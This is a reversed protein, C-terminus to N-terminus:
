RGGAHLVAGQGQQGGGNQQRTRVSCRDHGGRSGLLRAAVHAIVGEGNGLLRQHGGQIVEGAHRTPLDAQRRCQALAHGRRAHVARQAWLFGQIAQQHPGVQAVAFQAVVIDDQFFAGDAAGEGQLLHGDAGGTLLLVHAAHRAGDGHVGAIFQVAVVNIVDLFQHAIFRTNRDAAGAGTAADAAVVNAADVTVPDQGLDVADLNGVTEEVARVGLGLAIVDVRFDDFAHLDEPTRGRHQVAAVGDTARDAVEGEVRVVDDLRALVNAGAQFGAVAGGVVTPEFGGGDRAADLLEVAQQVQALAVAM